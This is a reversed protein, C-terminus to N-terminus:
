TKRIIVYLRKEARQEPSGWHAPVLLIFWEPNSQLLPSQTAVADAPGYVLWKYRAGSLYGHCCRVMWNKIPWISKGDGLRGVADFHQHCIKNVPPLSYELMHPLIHRFRPSSSVSHLVTHHHWLCMCFVLFIYCKICFSMRLYSEHALIQLM